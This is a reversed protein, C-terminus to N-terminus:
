KVVVYKPSRRATRFPDLIAHGTAFTAKKGALWRRGDIRNIRVCAVTEALM